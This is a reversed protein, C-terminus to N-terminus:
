TWDECIPTGRGLGPREGHKQYFWITSCIPYDIYWKEWHGGRLRRYWRFNSFFYDLLDANRYGWTGVACRPCGSQEKQHASCVSYFEQTFPWIGRTRM